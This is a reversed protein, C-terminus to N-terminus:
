ILCARAVTGTPQKLAIRMGHSKKMCRHVRDTAHAAFHVLTRRATAGVVAFAGWMLEDAM